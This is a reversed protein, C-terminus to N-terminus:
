NALVELIKNHLREPTFPKQLFATDRVMVGHRLIADDTYGSMYIVKLKPRMEILMEAVKPGSMGPMVVDSLLLHITGVHHESVRRAEVGGSATLVVYGYRSLVKSALERIGPDDEVVLITAKSPAARAIAVTGSADTSRETTSPLYMRFATGTNLRSEVSMGGGNQKVIGYM